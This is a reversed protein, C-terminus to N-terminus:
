DLWSLDTPMSTGLKLLHKRVRERADSVQKRSRSSMNPFVLESHVCARAIRVAQQDKKPGESRYRGYYYVLSEIEAVASSENFLAAINESTRREVEKLGRGHPLSVVLCEIRHLDDVSYLEMDRSYPKPNARMNRIYADYKETDADKAPLRSILGRPVSELARGM